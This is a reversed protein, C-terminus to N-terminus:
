VSISSTISKLQKEDDVKEDTLNMAMEEMLEIAPLIHTEHSNEFEKKSFKILWVVILTYIFFLKEIPKLHGSVNNNLLYSSQIEQFTIKEKGLFGAMDCWAPGIRVTGWDIVYLKNSSKEWLLNYHFLDGHQISYHILPNLEKYIRKNIIIDEMRKILTKSNRSYNLKNIKEHIFDFVEKNRPEKHISSFSWLLKQLDHCVEHAQMPFWNRIEGYKISSIAKCIEAVQTITNTTMKFEKKEIKEMTFLMLHDKEIEAFNILKPTTNKIVPYYGYVKLYFLKEMVNHKPNRSMKTLYAKGDSFNHEILGDNNKGRIRVYKSDLISPSDFTHELFDIMENLDSNLKLYGQIIKNAKKNRGLKQYCLALQQPYRDNKPFISTLNEGIEVAEEWKEKMIRKEFTISQWKGRLKMYFTNTGEESIVELVRSLIQM